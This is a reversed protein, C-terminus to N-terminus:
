AHLKSGECITHTVSFVMFSFFFEAWILIGAHIHAQQDLTSRPIGLHLVLNIGKNPPPSQPHLLKHLKIIATPCTSTQQGIKRLKPNPLHPIIANHHLNKM